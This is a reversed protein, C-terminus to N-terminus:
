FLCFLSIFCILQKFKLDYHYTICDPVDPKMAQHFITQNRIMTYVYKHEFGMQATKEEKGGKIDKNYYVWSYNRCFTMSFRAFKSFGEMKYPTVGFTVFEKLYQIGITFVTSRFDFYLRAVFILINLVAQIFFAKLEHQTWVSM